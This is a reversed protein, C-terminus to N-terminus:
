RKLDQQRRVYYRQIAAVCSQGHPSKTLCSTGPGKARAVAARTRNVGGEGIDADIEDSTFGFCACIPAHLDKPFLASHCDGVMVCREFQDFYAVQCENYECFYGSAGLQSRREPRIQADLTEGRVLIGLSGCRPCHLADTPDPERVFAKNMANLM